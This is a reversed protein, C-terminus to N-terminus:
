EVVTAQTRELLPQLKPWITELVQAHGAANPHIGDGQMRERNGGVNALVRPVLAVGTTEAVDRYVEVFRQTYARGYNPPLRVGVLLVQAQAKRAREIMAQLNDQMATLPLGRLGDNGGVQLVVIAPEHRELAAGLRARAASTTDGSVSANVVEYAYGDSQLRQRLRAVWGKEVPVGYGASISDGVVLLTPRDAAWVPSLPVLLALLVLAVRM